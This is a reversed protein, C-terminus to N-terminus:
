MEKDRDELLLDFKKTKKPEKKAMENLVPSNQKFANTDQNKIEKIELNKFNEPELPTKEVKEYQISKDDIITPTSTDDQIKIEYSDAKDNFTNEKKNLNSKEKKNSVFKEETIKNQANGSKQEVKKNYQQVIPKQNQPIQAPKQPKTRADLERLLRMDDDSLPKEKPKAMNYYAVSGAQFMMDLKLDRYEKEEKTEEPKIMEVDKEECIFFTEGLNKRKRAQELEPAYVIFPIRADGKFTVEKCLTMPERKDAIVGYLTMLLMLKKHQIKDLASNNEALRKSFVFPAPEGKEECQELIPELNYNNFPEIERQIRSYYGGNKARARASFEDAISDLFNKLMKETMYNKCYKANLRADDSLGLIALNSQKTIAQALANPLALQLQIPNFETQTILDKFEYNFYYADKTEILFNKYKTSAFPLILDDVFGNKAADKKVANYYDYLAMKTLYPRDTFRFVQAFVYDGFNSIYCKRLYSNNTNLNDYYKLRLFMTEM